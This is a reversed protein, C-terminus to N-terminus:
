GDYEVNWEADRGHMEFADWDDMTEDPEAQAWMEDMTLRKVPRVRYHDVDTWEDDERPEAVPIVHALEDDTWEPDTWAIKARKNRIMVPPVYVMEAAKIPADVTRSALEKVTAGYALVPKSEPERARKVLPPFNAHTNRISKAYAEEQEKKVRAAEAEQQQWHPHNWCSDTNIEKMSENNRRGYNPRGNYNRRETRDNVTGNWGKIRTDFGERTSKRAGVMTWENDAMTVTDGKGAGFLDM